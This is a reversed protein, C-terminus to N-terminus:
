AKDFRVTKMSLPLGGITEPADMEIILFTQERHPGDVGEHLLPRPHLLCRRRCRSHVIFFFLFFFIIIIIIFIIPNKSHGGALEDTNPLLLLRGFPTGQHLFQDEAESRKKATLLTM